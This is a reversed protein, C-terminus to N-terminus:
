PSGFIAETIRRLSGKGRTTVLAGATPAVATPPFSARSMTTTPGSRDLPRPAKTTLSFMRSRTIDRRPHAPSAARQTGNDSCGCLVAGSLGLLIAIPNTLRTTM